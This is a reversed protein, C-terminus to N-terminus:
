DHWGLLDERGFVTGDVGSGVTGGDGLRIAGLASPLKAREKELVKM